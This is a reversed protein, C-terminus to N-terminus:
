VCEPNPIRDGTTRAFRENKTILLAIREHFLAFRELRETKFISPILKSMTDRKYLAVLAFRDRGENFFLPQAFLLPFSESKQCVFPSFQWFCEFFLKKELSDSTKSLSESSDCAFWQRREKKFFDLAIRERNSKQLSRCSRNGWLREKKFLSSISGSM